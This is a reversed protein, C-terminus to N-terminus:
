QYFCIAKELIKRVEPTMDGPNQREVDKGDAAADHAAQLLQQQQQPSRNSYKGMAHCVNGLNYLARCESLQLM